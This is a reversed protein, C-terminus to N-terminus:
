VREAKPQSKGHTHEWLHGLRKEGELTTEFYVARVPENVHAIDHHHGMGTALCDGPKLRYHKGESVAECAGRVVIWYEDCDHFHNDFGTHREYAAPDGANEPPDVNEVSFLGAGGVEDGWRGCMRVVTVDHQVDCIEFSEAEDRVDVMTGVGADVTDRGTAVRCAGECVILKERRGKRAFDKVGGTPITEIEFSELECWRPARESSRFVPM